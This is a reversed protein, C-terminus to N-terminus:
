EGENGKETSTSITPINDLLDGPIGGPYKFILGGFIEGLDGPIGGLYKSMLDGFIEADKFNFNSIPIDTITPMSDKGEQNASSCGIADHIRKESVDLAEDIPFELMSHTPKSLTESSARAETPPETPVWVGLDQRPQNENRKIVKNSLNKAKEKTPAKPKNIDKTDKDQEKPLHVEKEQFVQFEKNNQGQM